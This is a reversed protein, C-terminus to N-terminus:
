ESRGAALATGGTPVMIRITTGSGRRSTIAITGGLAELRDRLGALGSGKEPDAGGAGDDRITLDVTSEDATLDVRVCSAGSHKAANTLSESVVYYVAVEVSQPLRRPANVTLEVPVGSRRALGKLAVGLGGDALIAPHIGRSIEQLDALAAALGAATQSLEASVDDLEPPVKTETARLSLALSVLRQQIGDHLDREIRRRAEDGAAVVRARSAVLQAQGEANAIATAVLETFQTIRGEVGASEPAQRWAAAIVGWLHGEVIIPAGVATSLGLMQVNSGIGGSSPADRDIRVAGGARRVLAAISEGDVSADVRLPLSVDATQEEAITTASGDSEYRELATVDAGLLSRMEACVASFLENPTVGKAVLTAVRRLATQEDVLVSLEDRSAELSAQARRVEEEARRRDTVDRAGAYVLGEAPAPRVNWELSRVSGDNSIYRNEFPSVDDGRRLQDLVLRSRAVDDPHVFDLLPQSLLQERPYGLVREFAPNVRKFYGDLGVTGIMDLSFDFIREAEQEARRRRVVANGVLYAVLAVAIPWVLALWPLLSQLGSPSAIAVDIRWSRALAAISASAAPAGRLQGELDRGDFSIAVQRPDDGLSLTLWGRPVFVALFGRRNSGRGFTGSQVLYFGPETGLSALSSATVAFVTASDRIATGLAPWTSVDVGRRLEPRTRTTYTAALYEPQAPAAVFTGSRELRSIPAGIRREYASRAPGPVRQVWLADVLGESGSTSGVLEAFRRQGAVPEDSLVNGLGVVSARARDLLAQTRVSEVQARRVADAQRDSRITRSTIVYGAVSLLVILTLLAVRVSGLPRSWSDHLPTIL